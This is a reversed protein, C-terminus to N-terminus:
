KNSETLLATKMRKLGTAISADFQQDGVRLIFGGIISPNEQITLEVETKFSSGILDMVKKRLTDDMPVATTIFATQIGKHISYVELFRRFINGLSNERKNRILLQLFNFTISTLKEKFLKNILDSKQSPRVIPSDLYKALEPNDSITQKVLIIDKQVIELQDKEVSLLFLAKAYRVAIKSENM